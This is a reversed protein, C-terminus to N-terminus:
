AAQIVPLFLYVGQWQHPFETASTEEQAVLLPYVDPTFTMQAFGCDDDLVMM